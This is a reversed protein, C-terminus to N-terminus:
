ARREGKLMQLIAAPFHAMEPTHLLPLNIGLLEIERLTPLRDTEIKDLDVVFRVTASCQFDAALLGVGRAEIKGRIPLPCAAQLEGSDNTLMTRDDAVLIAGRSILELTLASKGSGSAGIILVAAPGYAACSAHITKKTPITM